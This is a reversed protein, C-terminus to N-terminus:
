RGNEVKEWEALEEDDLWVDGAFIHCENDESDIGTVMFKLKDRTIVDGLKLDTWKLKAPESVLYALAYSLIYEGQVVVFRHARSEDQIKSLIETETNDSVLQKLKGLNDAVFVRCGIKLEDANVATYVKSKDFEM